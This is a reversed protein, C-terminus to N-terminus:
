WKGLYAEIVRPNAQIEAPKGQAIVEGHDLVVIRDSVSMVFNMNHEVLGITIGRERIKTMLAMVREAEAATMGGVPEDLLLLEPGAALAVAIGLLRQDGHPLSAAPWGARPGLGVTELAERAAEVAARPTGRSTFLAELTRAAGHQGGSRLHAGILVNQEATCRRFLENKQFSRVIGRRAVQHPEKGTIDEGRFFVRGTTPRLFGTLLNILTTKGAGNPGIISLIEGRALGIDANKVAELGGFRVGLKETKLFAAEATV